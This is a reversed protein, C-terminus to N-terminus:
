KAKAKQKRVFRRFLQFCTQQAYQRGDCFYFPVRWDMMMAHMSRNMIKAWVENPKSPGVPLSTMDCCSLMDAEIIVAAFGGADYIMRLNELESEFRERRGKTVIEGDETKPFDLLTGIFDVRSKREINCRGDWSQGDVEISYDGRSHPYRSLSRHIIDVKIPKGRDKADGVLGDFRWPETEATDVIIKFGADKWETTPTQKAMFSMGGHAVLGVSTARELM